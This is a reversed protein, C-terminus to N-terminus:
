RRWEPESASSRVPAWVAWLQLVGAALYACGTVAFAIRSADGPGATGMLIAFIVPAVVLDLFAPSDFSLTLAATLCLALGIAAGIAGTWVAYDARHWSQWVAWVLAISALFGGAAVVPWGPIVSAFDAAHLWADFLIWSSPLGAAALMLLLSWGFAFARGGGLTPMRGERQTMGLNKRTSVASGSRHPRPWRAHLVPAYKVHRTQWRGM